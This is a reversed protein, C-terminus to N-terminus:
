NAARRANVLFYDAELASTPPAMHHRGVKATAPEPSAEGKV